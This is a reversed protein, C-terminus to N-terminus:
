GISGKSAQLERNRQLKKQIRDQVEEDSLGPYQLAYFFKELYEMLDGIGLYEECLDMFASESLHADAKRAGVYLLKIQQEVKMASVTNVVEYFSKSFAKEIERITGLTTKVEYDKDLKIFM